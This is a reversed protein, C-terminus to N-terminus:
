KKSSWSILSNGLYMCHAAISKRDVVCCAWDADTYVVLSLSDSKSLYLGYDMTGKLYRLIRKVGQWHVTTPSQLFQSLKNVIYSINPRTHTLYELAGLVSRYITPNSMLEGDFASFKKGTITPTSCPKLHSIGTRELLESIYKSQLLYMGTATRFVEVGLYCSLLGLDKLAFVSNLRGVFKEIFAPCDRTILFADVYILVLVIMHPTSYFFVSNDARSNSFGWEM